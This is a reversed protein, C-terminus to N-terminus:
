IYIDISFEFIDDIDDLFSVRQCMYIVAIVNIIAFIMNIFFHYILYM